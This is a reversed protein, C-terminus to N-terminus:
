REKAIHALADLAIDVEEETNFYGFSFRVVGTDLTGITRHALPACHLGPRVYIDYEQDLLYSVEASDMGDLNM